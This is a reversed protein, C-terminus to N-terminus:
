ILSDLIFPRDPKKPKQQPRAEEGATTSTVSGPPPELPGKRGCASLSLAMAAALGLVVLNNMRGRKM